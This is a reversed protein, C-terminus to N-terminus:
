MKFRRESMKGVNNNSLKILKAWLKLANLCRFFYFLIKSIHHIATKNIGVTWMFVWSLLVDQARVPQELAAYITNHKLVWAVM